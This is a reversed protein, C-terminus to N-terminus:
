DIRRKIIDEGQNKEYEISYLRESLVCKRHLKLTKESKQDILNKKRYRLKQKQKKKIKQKLVCLIFFSSFLINSVCSFLQLFLLTIVADNIKNLIKGTTKNKITTTKASLFQYKRRYRM